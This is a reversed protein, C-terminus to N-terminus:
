ALRAAASSLISPWMDSATMAQLHPCWHRQKLHHKVMQNNM